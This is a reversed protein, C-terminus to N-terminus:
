ALHGNLRHIAEFCPKDFLNGGADRNRSVGKDMVAQSIRLKANGGRVENRTGLSARQGLGVNSLHEPKQFGKAIGNRLACNNVGVIVGNPVVNGHNLVLVAIAVENVLLGFVGGHLAADESLVNLLVIAHRVANDASAIGIKDFAVDKGAVDGGVARLAM